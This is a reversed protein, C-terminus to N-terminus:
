RVILFPPYSCHFLNFFCKREKQGKAQNERHYRNKSCRGCGVLKRDGTDVGIVETAIVPVNNQLGIICIEGQASRCGQSSGAYGNVASSGGTPELDAGAGQCEGQCGILCVVLHDQRGTHHQITEGQFFVIYEEGLSVATYLSANIEGAEIGVVETAIVPIDNQIGILRCKRQGCYGGQACRTNSNVTSHGAAPELSGGAIFALHCKGQCGVLSVVLHDNRLTSYQTIINQSLVIHEVGIGIATYSGCSNINGADTGIVEAAIVPVNNQLGIICFEIQRFNGRQSSGTHGDVALRCGTPELLGGTSQFERQCGTFLFMLNNQRGTHHQAIKNQCGLIHEIGMSGAIRIINSRQANGADTGVVETATVPIDNQIGIIRFEVQRCHCGQILRTNGNVTSYCVAPELNGGIIGTLQCKGQCGILSLMLHYNRGARMQTVVYQCALIHEIGMCVTCYIGVSRHDIDGTDCSIVVPYGIIVPVNLQRNVIICERQGRCQFQVCCHVAYGSGAPELRGGASQLEVHYGILCVM